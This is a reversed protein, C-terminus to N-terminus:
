VYIGKSKNYNDYSSSSSSSTSSSSGNYQKEQEELEKKMKEIKRKMAEKKKTEYLEPDYLKLMELYQKKRDLESSKNDDEDDDATQLGFFKKVKKAAGPAFNALKQVLSKPDALLETLSAGTELALNKIASLASAGLSEFLASFFESTTQEGGYLAANNYTRTKGRGKLKKSRLSRLYAMREKAEKSGKILGKGGIKLAGLLDRNKMVTRPPHTRNFEEQDDLFKEIRAKIRANVEPYRTMYEREKERSFRGRSIKPMDDSNENVQIRKHNVPREPIDELSSGGGLPRAKYFPNPLGITPHFNMGYGSNIASKTRSWLSTM